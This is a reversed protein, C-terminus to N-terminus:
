PRIAFFRRGAPNEDAAPMEPIGSLGYCGQRPRSLLWAILGIRRSPVKGTSRQETTGQCGSRGDGPESNEAGNGERGRLERGWQTRRCLHESETGPLRGPRESGSGTRGLPNSPSSLSPLAQLDRGGRGRWFADVTSGRRGRRLGCRGSIWWWWSTWSLRGPSPSAPRCRPWGAATLRVFAGGREQHQAARQERAVYLPM